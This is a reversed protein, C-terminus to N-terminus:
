RSKNQKNLLHNARTTSVTRVCRFGSGRWYDSANWWGSWSSNCEDTGWEWAGGRLLRIQPNDDPQTTTWESANGAMDYAGFTSPSNTTQFGDVLRGDYFGVPTTGNDFPDGSNHYNANSSDINEGWPYDWGTNGRAAKEWEEEDPLRLLYTDSFKWAGFWTVGTVPHIGYGEEVIFTTGNWSIRSDWMALFLYDGPGYYNDGGYFGRVEDGNLWVDGNAYADILFEAYEANTTEYKMIEYNYAITRTEDSYGFTFDGAPVVVFEFPVLILKGTAIVKVKTQDSYTGGYEAGLNWELHNGSGALVGNGADGSIYESNQYSAGDDFSVELEVQFYTFLSDEALDYFIDVIKSGDTRQVATVNSISATQSYLLGCSLIIISLRLIKVMDLGLILKKKFDLLESFSSLIKYKIMMRGCWWM